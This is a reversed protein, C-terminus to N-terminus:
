VYSLCCYSIFSLVKSLDIEFGPLGGTILGTQGLAEQALLVGFTPIPAFNSDGEYLFRNGDQDGTSAGVQLAFNMNSHTVTSKTLDYELKGALAYLIVDKPSVQCKVPAPRWNM